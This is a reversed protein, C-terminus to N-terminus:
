TSVCSFEGGEKRYGGEAGGGSMTAHTRRAIWANQDVLLDAFDHESTRRANTARGERAAADGAHYRKPGVFYSRIRFSVSM